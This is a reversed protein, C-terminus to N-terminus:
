SDKGIGHKISYMYDFRKLVVDDIDKEGYGYICREEDKYEFAKQACGGGCIPAIRCDHCVAKSFKYARIHSPQLRDYMIRGDSLLKGSRNDDTFDRATCQFTNGDYNVLVYNKKDGYCSHRVRDSNKAYTAGFGDYGADEVIGLVNEEIEDEDTAKGMDQWVRQFDFSIYRRSDKEVDQFHQVVARVSGINEETYNIRVVVYHGDHVLSKINKVIRDFSGNGNKMFRTKDHSERNGDLTIQFSVNKGKFFDLMSDTLLYGNTTFHLFPSIAAESCKLYFYEIIHRAVFNFYMLPEGGFFSLHFEKLSKNHSIIDDILKKVAERTEESMKSGKVHDEYCYWCRFNCDVTPNVHLHFVTDDEDVSHILDRVKQVEDVDADVIGGVETLQGYLTPANHELEEVGDQRLADYALAKLVIFKDSMANYFLGFRDNVRLLTNYRSYKKNM